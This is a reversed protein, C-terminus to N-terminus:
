ISYSLIRLYFFTTVKQLLLPIDHTLVRDMEMVMNKDLRKFDSIDKIQPHVSLNIILYVCANMVFLNTPLFCPSRKFSDLREVIDVVEEVSFYIQNVM